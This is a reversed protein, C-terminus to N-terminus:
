VQGCTWALADTWWREPTDQRLDWRTKVARWAGIYACWRGPDWPLWTLPDNDAKARNVRASVAVLTLPSGLDNAFALRRDHSWGDAGSRHAEALPVLHDIDVDRPDTMTRGTYPDVWRGALVRCGDASLRPRVVSDRILVEQRTDQCDGDADVWHTYLERRYPEIVPNFLELHRLGIVAAPLAVALVVLRSLIWFRPRHDSRRPRASSKPAHTSRFAVRRTM